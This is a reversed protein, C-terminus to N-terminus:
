AAKVRPFVPVCQIAPQIPELAPRSFDRDWLSEIGSGQLRYRSSIKVASDRIV